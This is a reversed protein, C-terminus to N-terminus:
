PLNASSEGMFICALFEAVAPEVLAAVLIVLNDFYHMARVYGTVGIVNCVVVVTAELPLWYMRLNMWEMTGHHVNFDFSIPEGVMFVFILTELSGVFMVIFM